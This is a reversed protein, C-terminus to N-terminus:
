RRSIGAMFGVRVVAPKPTLQPLEPWFPAASLSVWRICASCDFICNEEPSIDRQIEVEVRADNYCAAAALDFV